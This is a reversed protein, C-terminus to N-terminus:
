CITFAFSLPALVQGGTREESGGEKGTAGVFDGSGGGCKVAPEAVGEFRVHFRSPFSEQCEIGEIM